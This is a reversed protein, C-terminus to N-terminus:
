LFRSIYEKLFVKFEDGNKKWKLRNCDPCAIVIKSNNKPYYHELHVQDSTELLFHCYFCKRDQEEFIRKVEKYDIDEKNKWKYYHVKREWWSDNMKDRDEKMKIRVRARTTEYCKIRMGRGCSKCYRQLGDKQTKNRFYDSLSLINHCHNCEKM